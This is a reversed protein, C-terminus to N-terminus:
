LRSPRGDVDRSSPRGALKESFGELWNEWQLPFSTHQFLWRLPPAPHPKPYSKGRKNITPRRAGTAGGCRAQVIVSETEVRKSAYPVGQLEATKSSKLHGIKLLTGFM